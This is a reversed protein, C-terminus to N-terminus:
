GWAEHLSMGGDVQLVGGTTHPSCDDCLLFRVAKAISLPPIARGGLKTPPSAVDGSDVHGPAVTNARSGLRAVQGALERVAVELSAKAASYAMDGLLVRTHVSSLFVASGSEGSEHRTAFLTEALSMPSFVHLDHLAFWELPDPVRNFEGRIRLHATHVLYRPRTDQLEAVLAEREYPQTVDCTLTRVAPGVRSRLAAMEDTDIDVALVRAGVDVLHESLVAGIRGAAGIVVVLEDVLAPHGGMPTM